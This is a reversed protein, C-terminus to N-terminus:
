LNALGKAVANLTRQLVPQLVATKVPDLLGESMYIDQSMELQMAYVGKASHGHFRTIQGGKFPSNYAVTYSSAQLERLAIAVLSAKAEISNDM